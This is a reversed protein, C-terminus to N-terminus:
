VTMCWMRTAESALRALEVEPGQSWPGRRASRQLMSHLVSCQGMLGLQLTLSHKVTTNATIHWGPGQESIVCEGKAAPHATASLGWRDARCFNDRASLQRSLTLASGMQHRSCVYPYM